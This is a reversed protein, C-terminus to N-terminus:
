KTNNEINAIAKEVAETISYEKDEMKIKNLLPLVNKDKLEALADIAYIRSYRWEKKSNAISFLYKKIKAKDKYKINKDKLIYKFTKLAHQKISLPDYKEGDIMKRRQTGNKVEDLLINAYNGRGYAISKNISEDKDSGKYMCNIVIPVARLDGSYALLWM